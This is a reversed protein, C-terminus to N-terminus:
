PGTGIELILWRSKQTQRGMLFFYTYDGPPDGTEADTKTTRITTPVECMSYLVSYQPSFDTATTSM